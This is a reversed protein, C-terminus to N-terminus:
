LDELGEIVIRAREAVRRRAEEQVAPLASYTVIIEEKTMTPHKIRADIWGLQRVESDYREEAIQRAEADIDSQRQRPRHKLPFSYKHDYETIRAQLDALQVPTLLDGAGQPVIQGLLKNAVARINEARLANLAEAEAQTLVTGEAFPSTVIFQYHKLRISLM